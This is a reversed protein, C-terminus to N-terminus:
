WAVGSYQIQLSNQIGTVTQVHALQKEHKQCDWSNTRSLADHLHIPCALNVSFHYDTRNAMDGTLTPLNYVNTLPCSSLSNATRDPCQSSSLFHAVAPLRVLINLRYRTKRQSTETWTTTMGENCVWLLTHLNRDDPQGPRETKHPSPYISTPERHTSWM